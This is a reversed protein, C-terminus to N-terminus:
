LLTLILNLVLLNVVFHCLTSFPIMVPHVKLTMRNASEILQSISETFFSVFPGFACDPCLCTLLLSNMSSMVVVVSVTGWVFLRSLFIVSLSSHAPRLTLASFHLDKTITFPFTCLLSSLIFPLAIVWSCSLYMLYRPFSYLASRDSCSCIETTPEFRFCSRVFISLHLSGPFYLLQIRCYMSKGLSIHGRM